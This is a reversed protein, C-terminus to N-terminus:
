RITNCVPNPTSDIPDGQYVHRVQLGCELSILHASLIKGQHRLWSSVNITTEELIGCAFAGESEQNHVRRQWETHYSFLLILICSRFVQLYGCGLEVPDQGCDAVTRGDHGPANDQRLRRYAERLWAVDLYHHLSTFSVDPRQKALEAIRQQKTSVDM